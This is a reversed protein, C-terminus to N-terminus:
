PILIVFFILPTHRIPLTFFFFTNYRVLTVAQLAPSIKFNAFLKLDLKANAAIKKIEFCRVNEIKVGILLFFFIVKWRM